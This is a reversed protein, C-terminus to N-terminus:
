QDGGYPSLNLESCLQSRLALVKSLIGLNVTTHVALVEALIPLHMAGIKIALGTSIKGLCRSNLTTRIAFVEGLFGSDAAARSTTVEGLIALNM